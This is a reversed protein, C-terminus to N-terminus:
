KKRFSKNKGLYPRSCVNPMREQFREKKLNLMKIKGRSMIKRLSIRIKKTRIRRERITKRTKIKKLIKTRTRSIKIRIRNTKKIKRTRNTTKKINKQNMKKQLEQKKKEQISKALNYRTQGDKPNLKLADKYANIAEKLKEQKLYTNGLNHYAEAKTKDNQALNLAKQYHAEAEEFRDQKYLSNGLNYTGEIPKENAEISKKYAVEAESYKGAAYAENGEKVVEGYKKQGYAALSIFLMLLNAIIKKM